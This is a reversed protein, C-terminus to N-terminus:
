LVHLLRDDFAMCQVVGSVHTLHVAIFDLRYVCLIFNSALFQLPIFPSNDLLSQAGVKCFSFTRSTQPVSTYIGKLMNVVIQIKKEFHAVMMAILLHNTIATLTPEPSPHYLQAVSFSAHIVAAFHILIGLAWM